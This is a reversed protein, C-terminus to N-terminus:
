HYSWTEDDVGEALQTFLLLNQARLNLKHEPGRFYFGRAEGLDGEAYKRRHRLSESQSPAIRLRIPSGADTLSWFLAEGTQLPELRSVPKPPERHLIAAAERLTAEPNDGIAIVTEVSTVAPLVLQNPHVTIFLAQTLEQPLTVSAPTWNARLLHHAEEIVLGH